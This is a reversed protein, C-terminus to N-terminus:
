GNNNLGINLCTRPHVYCLHPMWHTHTLLPKIKSVLCSTIWKANHHQHDIMRKIGPEVIHHTPNPIPIINKCTKLMHRPPFQTTSSFPSLLYPGRLSNTHGIAHQLLCGNGVEMVNSTSWGNWFTPRKSKKLNTYKTICRSM